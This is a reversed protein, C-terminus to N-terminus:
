RSCRRTLDYSARRRARCGRAEPAAPDRERRLRELYAAIAADVHPQRDIFEVGAVYRVLEHGIDAIHCHVVRARVVM